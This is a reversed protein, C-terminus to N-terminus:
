IYLAVCYVGGVQVHVPLAGVVLACRAVGALLPVDAPRECALGLAM